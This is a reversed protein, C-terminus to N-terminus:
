DGGAGTRSRAVERRLAPPIPRNTSAQWDIQELIPGQTDEGKAMALSQRELAKTAATQPLDAVREDIFSPDAVPNFPKLDASTLQTAQDKDQFLDYL